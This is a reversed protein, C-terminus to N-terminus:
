LLNLNLVLRAGGGRICERLERSRTHQTLTRTRLLRGKEQPARGLDKAQFAGGSSARERERWGGGWRERERGRPKFHAEAAVGGTEMGGERGGERGGEM